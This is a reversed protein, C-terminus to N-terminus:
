LLRADVDLVTICDPPIPEQFVVAGSIVPDPIRPVHIPVRLELVVPSNEYLECTGAWHAACAMPNVELKRAEEWTLAPSAYVGKPQRAMYPFNGKPGYTERPELGCDLISPLNRRMTTHYWTEM